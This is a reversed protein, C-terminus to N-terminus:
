GLERLFHHLRQALKPGIGEVELLQQVSAVKLAELSGFHGLISRRKAPGLGPFSDLVTERIRRSRLEANYRNAHRHAEDRLNQLLLRGAHYGPLQLPARGDAFHVTEERKALGILMPPQLGIQEFAFLASAVQGAGGDIVVLDPFSRNEAHLRQYRRAVVECMARFDDNGVFSRIQYRRYQKRDPKGDLFHVMSAVCFTGSIHSIDFCEMRRPLCEMQLAEKLLELPRPDERVLLGRQTFKRNRQTTKRLAELADRL